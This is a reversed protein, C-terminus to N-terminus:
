SWVVKLFMSPNRSYCKNVCVGVLYLSLITVGLAEM